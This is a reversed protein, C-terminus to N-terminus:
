DDSREEDFFRVQQSVTVEQEGRSATVEVETKGSSYGVVVDTEKSAM